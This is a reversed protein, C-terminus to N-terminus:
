ITIENVCRSVHTQKFGSVGRNKMIKTDRGAFIVIGYCWQTNRIRCGRLLINNNELSIENGNDMKLTGVFQNLFQNPIECGIDFNLESIESNIHDFNKSPSNDEFIQNLDTVAQRSKLNTEGDLEATDIFCLGNPESTTLILMDAPVCDNNKLLVVNGVSINRWKRDELVTGNLIKVPQSNLYYDNLHRKIDDNLDKLAKLIVVVLLPILTSFPDLSSVIPILQLILMFLFYLNAM